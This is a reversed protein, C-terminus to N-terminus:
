CISEYGYRRVYLSYNYMLICKYEILLHLLYTKAITSNTISDYSYQDGM